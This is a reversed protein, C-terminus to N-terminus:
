LFIFSILQTPLLTVIEDNPLLHELDARVRM